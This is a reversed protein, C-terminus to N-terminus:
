PLLLDRAKGFEEKMRAHFQICRPRDLLHLGDSTRGRGVTLNAQQLRNKTVEALCPVDVEVAGFDVLQKRANSQTFLDLSGGDSLNRAVLWRVGAGHSDLLEAVQSDGEKDDTAM